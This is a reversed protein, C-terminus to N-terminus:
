NMQAIQQPAITDMFDHASNISILWAAAALRSFSLAVRSRSLRYTLLYQRSHCLMEIDAFIMDQTNRM